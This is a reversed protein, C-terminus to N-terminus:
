IRIIQKFSAARQPGLSFMSKRKTIVVPQFICKKKSSFSHSSVFRDSIKREEEPFINMNLVEEATPREKPNYKLLKDILKGLPGDCKNEVFGPKVIDDFFTEFNLNKFPFEGTAVVHLTVGLAWMDSAQADYSDNMFVDPAVFLPTGCANTSFKSNELCLNFDLLKAKMDIDLGINAPKIDRHSIGKSHLYKLAQCIQKAWRLYVDQSVCRHYTNVFGSLTGSVLLEEVIVIYEPLYITEIHKAINPHNIWELVRLEKEANELNYKDKFISRNIFKMAVRENTKRNLAQYVFSSGGRAIVFELDYNKIHQPVSSMDKM